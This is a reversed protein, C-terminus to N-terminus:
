KAECLMLLILFISYFFSYCLVNGFNFAITFFLVSCFINRTIVYAAITM